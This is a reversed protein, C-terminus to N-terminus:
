SLPAAPSSSSSGISTSEAGTARPQAFLDGEFVQVTDGALTGFGVAGAHLFRIWRQTAM